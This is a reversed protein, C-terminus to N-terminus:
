LIRKIEWRVGRKAESVAAADNPARPGDCFVYVPSQSFEPCRQLVEVTRRIHEPRKYVFLVIPAYKM